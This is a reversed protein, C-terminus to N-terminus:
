FYKTAETKIETGWSLKFLGLLSKECSGAECVFFGLCYVGDMWGDIWGFLCYCCFFDFGTKGLFSESLKGFKDTAADSSEM